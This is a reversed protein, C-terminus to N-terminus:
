DAQVYCDRLFVLAADAGADGAAGPEAGRARHGDPWHLTVDGMREAARLAAINSHLARSLAEDEELLDLARGAAELVLAAERCAEDAMALTEPEWELPEFGADFYADASSDLLSSGTCSFLVMLLFALDAYPQRDQAILSRILREALPRLADFDGEDIARYAGQWRTAPVAAPHLDFCGALLAALRPHETLFDPSAVELGAFPLPVGYLLDELSSLELHPYARRLGARFAGEVQRLGWGGRLGEVLECYTVPLCRRAVGLAYLCLADPDEEDGYAEEGWGPEFFRLPDLWAAALALSLTVDGQMAQALLAPASKLEAPTTM